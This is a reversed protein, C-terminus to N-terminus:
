KDEENAQILGERFHPLESNEQNILNQVTDILERRNGIWPLLRLTLAWDLARSPALIDHSLQLYLQIERLLGIPIQVRMYEVKTRLRNLFTLQSDHRSNADASPQCWSEWESQTVILSSSRLKRAKIPEPGQPKSLRAVRDYVDQNMECHNIGSSRTLFVRVGGASFDDTWDLFKPLYSEPFSRDCNNLHIAWLMDGRELMKRVSIDLDMQRLQEGFCEQSFFKPFWDQLGLWGLEVDIKTVHLHNDCMLQWVDIIRTDAVELASFAKMALHIAAGAEDDDSGTIGFRGLSFVFDSLYANEDQYHERDEGLKVAYSEGIQVSQHAIRPASTIRNQERQMTKIKVIAKNIQDLRVETSEVHSEVHKQVRQDLQTIKQDMDNIFEADLIQTELSTVSEGVSTVSKEVKTLRSNIRKIRKNFDSKIESLQSKFSQTVETIQRNLEQATEDTAEIESVRLDLSNVTEFLRNVQDPLIALQQQHEIEIRPLAKEILSEIEDSPLFYGYEYFRQITEQDIQNNRSAELLTKFCQIDLESNPPAICTCNEDFDAANDFELLLKHLERHSKVWATWATEFMNWIVSNTFEQEKKLKSILIPVTKTLPARGKRFGPVQSELLKEQIFQKGTRDTIEELFATFDKANQEILISRKGEPYPKAEM